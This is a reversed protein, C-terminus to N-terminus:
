LKDDTLIKLLIDMMKDTKKEIIRHEQVDHSHHDIITQRMAEMKTVTLKIDGEAAALRDKMESIRDHAGQVQSELYTHPPEAAKDKPPASRTKLLYGFAGLVVTAVSGVIAIAEPITLMFGEM